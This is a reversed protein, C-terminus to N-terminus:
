GLPYAEGLHGNQSHTQVSVSAQVVATPQVSQSKEAQAKALREKRREAVQKLGEFMSMQSVNVSTNVTTNHQCTGEVEARAQAVAGIILALKKELVEGWENVSKTRWLLAENLLEDLAQLRRRKQAIPIDMYRNTALYQVYRAYRKWKRSCAKSAPHYSAWLTSLNREDKGLEDKIRQAVLPLSDGLAFWIVIQRREKDTYKTPSAM